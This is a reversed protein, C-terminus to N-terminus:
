FDVVYCVLSSFLVLKNETFHKLILALVNIEGKDLPCTTALFAQLNDFCDKEFIRVFFTKM